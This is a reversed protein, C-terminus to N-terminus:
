PSFAKMSGYKIKSRKNRSQGTGCRHQNTATPLQNVNAAKGCKSMLLDKNKASHANMNQQFRLKEFHAHSPSLGRTEALVRLLM